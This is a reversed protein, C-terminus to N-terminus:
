QAPFTINGYIETLICPWTNPVTKHTNVGLEPNSPMLETVECDEAPTNKTLIYHKGDEVAFFTAGPLFDQVQHIFPQSPIAAVNFSM